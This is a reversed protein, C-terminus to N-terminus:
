DRRFAISALWGTLLAMATTALGYLLSYDLSAKVVFAEVGVKMVNFTSSTQAVAVGSSFLKLDVNYDGILASQPLSIDVRFVKSSLFTVGRAQEKYLKEDIRIDVLNTLYPDREEVNQEVFVSNKFGIGQQRLTDASAIADFPRNAFVGLFSPIDAFNRSGKNIWIGAVREKRRAMVTQRPGTVTAVVDYERPPAGGTKIAGFVVIVSGNFNSNISITNPAITSILEEAAAFSCQLVLAIMSVATLHLPANM